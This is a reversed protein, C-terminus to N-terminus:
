KYTLDTCCNKLFDVERNNLDLIQAVDEGLGPKGFIAHLM